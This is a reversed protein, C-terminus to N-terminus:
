WRGSGSVNNYRIFVIRTGDASWAPNYDNTATAIQTLVSGDRQMVFINGNGGSAHGVFAIRNGQPDYRPDAAGNVTALVRTTDRNIGFAIISSLADNQSAILPEAPSWSVSRYDRSGYQMAGGGLWPVYDPGSMRVMAALSQGDPSWTAGYAGIGGYFAMEQNAGDITMRYIQASRTFAIQSGDPSVVPGQEDEPTNTLQRLNTGDSLISYIEWNGSKSSSFVVTEPVDVLIHADAYAAGATATITTSGNAVSTVTGSQDVTVVGAISTSWTVAQGAIAHGNADLVSAILQVTSGLATLTDSSPTLSVSAPSQSVHVLATDSVTGLTAVIRADGSGSASVLGGASVGAVGPQLSSWTVTPGFVAVGNGDRLEATLQVAEGLSHLTNAEPTIAIAAVIQGVTVVATDRLGNAFAVIRGIGNGTTTLLGQPNVTAVAPDLTSWALGQVAVANGRSDAASAAARTTDGVAAFLDRPLAISLQSAVQQVRLSVTASIGSVRATIVTTGNGVATALGESTVTAVSPTSSSWQAPADPLVDGQANRMVASFHTTAGLADLSDTSPTVAISAVQSDSQDVPDGGACATTYLSVFIAILLTSHARHM